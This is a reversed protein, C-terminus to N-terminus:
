PQRTKLLKFVNERTLLNLDSSREIFPRVDEIAKKWDLNELRNSEGFRDHSPEFSLSTRKRCDSSSEGM